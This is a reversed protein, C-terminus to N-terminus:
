ALRFGKKPRSSTGGVVVERNKLEAEKLKRMRKVDFVWDNKSRATEGLAHLAEEEEDSLLEVSTRNGERWVNIQILLEPLLM